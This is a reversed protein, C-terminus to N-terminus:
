SALWAGTSPGVVIFVCAASLPSQPNLFLSSSAPLSFLPPIYPPAPPYPITMQHFCM